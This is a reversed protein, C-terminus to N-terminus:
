AAWQDQIRKLGDCRQKADNGMYVVKDAAWYTCIAFLIGALFLAIGIVSWAPIAWAGPSLVPLYSYAFVGLGVGMLASHILGYYKVMRARTWPAWSLKRQPFDQEHGKLLIEGGYEKFSTPDFKKFYRHIGARLRLEYLGEYHCFAKLLSLRLGGFGILFASAAIIPSSDSEPRTTALTVGGGLVLTVVTLFFQTAQHELNTLHKQHDFSMELEKLMYEHFPHNSSPESLVGHTM